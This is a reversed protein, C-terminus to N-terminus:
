LMRFPGRSAAHLTIGPSWRDLSFHQTASGHCSCHLPSPHFCLRTSSLTPPSCPLFDSPSSPREQIPPPPTETLGSCAGPPLLPRHRPPAGGRLQHQSSFLPFCSSAWPWLGKGSFANNTNLFYIEERGDGDIDCATVGIANGQRDRLAYYPSSREDVAINVLRKQTRDYKLVLNPGNYRCSSPTPTNLLLLQTCQHGGAWCHPKSDEQAPRCHPLEARPCGPSVRVDSTGPHKTPIRSESVSESLILAM